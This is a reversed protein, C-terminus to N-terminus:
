APMEEPSPLPSPPFLPRQQSSDPFLGRRLGALALLLRRTQRTPPAAAVDALAADIRDLLAAPAPLPGRRRAQAHFHAATLDLVTDVSQLAAGGLYRRRRRLDALNLGVRLDSLADVAALDAGPAVTGLRPVLLALRDLMHASLTQPRVSAGHRAADALERWGARLLRRASWEAGVSRVLATILGALGMGLVMALGSNSLSAIDPVYVRDQLNLMTPMGVAIPLFRGYLAPRTMAIGTILLAPSFALVLLAFGDIFPFVFLAYVMAAVVGLGNAITFSVIAPVPNDQAAFFCCAVAAMQTAIAGEQWETGIWIVCCAIVTLAAALASWLAMGYDVHRTEAVQHRTGTEEAQDARGDVLAAQLARCSQWLSVTEGLRHLLSVTLVGTWDLHADAPPSLAAIRRRLDPAREAPAGAAIWGDMDALLAQLDPPLGGEERSLAAVRDAVSSLVPMLMVMQRRLRRVVATAGRLASTDFDLHTALADIEAADAALKRRDRGAVAADALGALADRSWRSADNLWNEVRGALVPGFPRPFALSGVLAACCVGLTIEEVRSLATDFISAPDTVAPFGILAASYGALMFAYGRPTRDLLSIFLCLGTWGAMALVLLEPASALNPILVVTAIAGLLTGVARYSAKSRLTGTLPQMVIYVTALAWYPRQLDLMLAIWLALMGATFAKLSFLLEEGSPLLRSM